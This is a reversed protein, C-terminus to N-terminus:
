GIPEAVQVLCDGSECHTHLRLSLVIGSEAFRLEQEPRDLEDLDHTWGALDGKEVRDGLSVAPEFWLRRTAYLSQSPRILSLLQMAPLPPPEALIPRKTIELAMLLRDIAAQTAAMSMPTTSGGGGFEGSIGIVGARRAAGMSTPAAPGNDAVFGHRLGLRRMLDVAREHRTPDPNREVLACLLHAMSTGGAHIDFVVDHRPFLEHELFHALRQTPVGGPDGPFARNLNGDDLPSRRRAAMVAPVNAMPMITVRGRIHSPDLKRVLRALSLEGEYEDGHNGAMLLVSPGAGNRVVCVPVKVHYYPSRDVSFPLSLYNLVKGDGELDLEHLVGTHM